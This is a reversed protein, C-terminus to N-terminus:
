VVAVATPGAVLGLNLMSVRNPKAPMRDDSAPEPSTDPVVARTDSAGLWKAQMYRQKRWPGIHMKKQRMCTKAASCLIKVLSRLREAKGVYVEPLRSILRKYEDCARAMEFEARFSLEIVVRIEGKRSGTTQDVIELYEHEGAPIDHSSRWKSKCAVCDYGANRLHVAVERRLCIRCGGAVPRRCLCKQGSSNVENLAEKTAHRIKTEVANTRYMTAQLLQEQEQWFAKSEESTCGDDDEDDDDDGGGPNGSDRYNDPSNNGDDLFGFLVDDSSAMGDLFRMIDDSNQRDM